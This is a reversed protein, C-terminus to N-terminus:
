QAAPHTPGPPCTYRLFLYGGDELVGALQLALGGPILSGNTIRTSGGALLLPSLTLCLEDLLGAGVVQAFLRPGGECSIRLHGREALANVAGTLDVQRDGAIIVDAADGLARLRQPPAAECTIIITRAHGPARSFLSSSIDFDLRRSVVALPPTPPRGAREDRWAPHSRVPGYRETRVTEAGVLVVDALGRLLAFLRHDTGSGLGGSRGEVTAAGDASAVFVARVWPQHSFAPFAYEQALDVDESAHPYLRRM